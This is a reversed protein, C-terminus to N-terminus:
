GGSAGRRAKASASRATPDSGREDQAKLRSLCAVLEATTSVTHDAGAADLEGPGSYGWRVAVSRVGHARAGAIDEARDGIMVAADPATQRDDLAARILTAKSYQRDGIVPGYVEDFYRAIDFHVVIRRAYVAPKATVVALRWGAMALADLAEVMGPWLANEFMGTTEFRRRYAAIAAEILQEDDTELLTRFSHHLPPGVCFRLEDEGPAERGLEIMAHQVCRAIGPRSDTLTGDLDFFLHTM